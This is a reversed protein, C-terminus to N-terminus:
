KVIVTMRARKNNYTKVTIVTRGKRLAKIKGNTDVVAVRKKSSGYRVSCSATGAPFRTRIRYSGGRRLTKRAATLKITSPSNKVVVTITCKKRNKSYVTIKAKGKRRGTIKGRSTVSVVRKNSSKYSVTKNGANAPGIVPTLQIKENRGLTLKKVNKNFVKLSIASVLAPQTKPETTKEKARETEPQKIPKAESETETKAESEPETAPETAPETEPGTGPETEVEREPQSESKYVTVLVEEEKKAALIEGAGYVTYIGPEVDEGSDDKGDWYFNRYCNYNSSSNVQVVQMSEDRGLVRVDEGESNRIVCSVDVKPTNEFSAKGFDVNIKLEEKQGLTLEDSAVTLKMQELRQKGADIDKTVSFPLLGRVRQTDPQLFVAYNGQTFDTGDLKISIQGTGAPIDTQETKGKWIRYGDGDDWSSQSFEGLKNVSCMLCSLSWTDGLYFGLKVGFPQAANYAISLTANNEGDYSVVAKQFTVAPAAAPAAPVFQSGDNEPYARVHSTQNTNMIYKYIEALSISGDRNFDANASSLSVDGQASIQMPNIGCGIGMATTFVGLAEAANGLGGQWSLEEKSAAALIKFESSGLASRSRGSVIEAAANFETIFSNLFREEDSYESISKSIMVGSYCCDIVLINKGKIGEFAAALNSATMTQGSELFLGTSSGHGVYYFYNIDDEDSDKFSESIASSAGSVTTVGAKDLVQCSVPGDYANQLMRRFNEGDNQPGPTLDSSFQYDGRTIILGRIEQNGDAARASSGGLLMGLVVLCIALLIGRRAYGRM